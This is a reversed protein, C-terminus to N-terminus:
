CEPIDFAAVAGFEGSRGDLMAMMANAASTTMAKTVTTTSM